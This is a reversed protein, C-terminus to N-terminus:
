LDLAVLESYINNIDKPTLSQSLYFKQQGQEPKLSWFKSENLFRSEIRTSCFGFKILLHSRIEPWHQTFFEHDSVHLVNIGPLKKFRHTKFLIFVTKNGDTMVIRKLWPFVSHDAYSKKDQDSMLSMAKDNDEIFTLKKGLLKPLHLLTSIENDLPKFRLYSFIELGSTNPTYMTFHYGQQRIASLVLLVSKTRFEPLVCWSHPNCIREEKGNINQLSYIACLAGVVDGEDNKMMFGHNPADALWSTNLADGWIEPSFRDSMHSNLFVSVEKIHKKEIPSIKAKIEPKTTTM